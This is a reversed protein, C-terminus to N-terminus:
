LKPKGTDLLVKHYTDEYSIVINDIDFKERATAYAVEIRQRREASDTLVARLSSVLESENKLDFISAMNEDVCEMNEPIRSAAIPIRALMAEILAGPLGEYHSPFVFCSAMKLLVPVDSRNGLLRVRNSLNLHQIEMELNSKFPGSGAILLIANPYESSLLKFARILELQGKRQILRSINLIIQHSTSVNLERQLSDIKDANVDFDRASRGRYIVRIKKKPISLAKSNSVGITESNSIFLDVRRATWADFLQLVKLKVWMMAGASKFRSEHYSNNVLSNILPIRLRRAVRRAVIDSKFLTSHIIVPKITAVLDCVAVTAKAWNYPPPIKLSFTPVGRDEFESRLTDGPYIHCVVPAFQDLRSVIDLLSKEAGGVNLTDIIFLITPKTM